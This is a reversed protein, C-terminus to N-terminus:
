GLFLLCRGVGLGFSKLMDMGHDLVCDTIARVQNWRPRVERRGYWCKVTQVIVSSAAGKILCGLVPDISPVLHISGQILDIIADVGADLIEEAAFEVAGEALEVAVKGTELDLTGTLRTEEWPAEPSVRVAGIFELEIRDGSPVDELSAEVRYERGGFAFTAEFVRM